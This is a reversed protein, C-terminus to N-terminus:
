VLPMEMAHDADWVVTGDTCGVCKEATPAGPPGAFFLCVNCFGLISGQNHQTHM